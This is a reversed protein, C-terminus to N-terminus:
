AKSIVIEDRITNVKYQKLPHPPPGSINQGNLDYVGNHCACFIQKTDKKYQVICDLHTCTAQLAKFEGDVKRILIVPERGFKVIESSNPKFDAIKGAVISNVKAEPIKPPKLYALIPYFTTALWGILSGGLIYDIFKKRSIAM